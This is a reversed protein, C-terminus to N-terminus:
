AVGVSYKAGLYREVGMRDRADLARNFFLVELITGNLPASGATNTAGMMVIPSAGYDLSTLGGLSNSGDPVGNIFGSLSATTGAFSVRMTAVQYAAPALAATGTYSFSSTPTVAVNPQMNISTGGSSRWRMFQKAGGSTGVVLLGRDATASNHKAVAIYTYSNGLLAAPVAVTLVDDVADYKVGPYGNKAPLELTPRQAATAQLLHSAGTWSDLWGGIPDGNAVAPTTLASDQFFVGPTDTRWWTVLGAINAPYITSRLLARNKGFTLPSPM